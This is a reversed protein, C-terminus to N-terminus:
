EGSNFNNELLTLRDCLDAYDGDEDRFTITACPCDDCRFLDDKARCALYINLCKEFTTM